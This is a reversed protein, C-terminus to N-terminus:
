ARPPRIEKDLYAFFFRDIYFSQYTSGVEIKEPMLTFVAACLMCGGCHLLSQNDPCHNTSSTSVDRDQDTSQKQLHNGHYAQNLPGTEAVLVQNIPDFSEAVALQSSSALLMMLVLIHLILTSQREIM